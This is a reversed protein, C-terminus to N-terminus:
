QALREQNVAQILDQKAANMRAATYDRVAQSANEAIALDNIGSAMTYREWHHRVTRQKSM